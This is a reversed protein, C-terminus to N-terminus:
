LSPAAQPTPEGRGPAWPVRPCGWGRGGPRPGSGEPLHSASGVAWSGTRSRGQGPPLRGPAAQERPNGGESVASPVAMTDGTSLHPLQSQSPCALECASAKLRPDRGGRSRAQSFDSACPWQLQVLGPSSDASRGPSWPIALAASWSGPEWPARELLPGVLLHKSTLLGERESSSDLGCVEKTDPLHLFQTSLPFPKQLTRPACSQM